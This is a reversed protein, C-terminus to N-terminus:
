LLPHSAFFQWLYQRIDPADPFSYKGPNGGYWGHGPGQLFLTEIVSQGSENRYLSHEWASSGEAGEHSSSPNRTDIEFCHGWSDRLVFASNIDVVDDNESHVIQIPVARAADGMEDRMAKVIAVVPRNRPTKNFEHRVAETKEAYPVGAVAAGSAIKDAHAVMMAVAMGAGSSLGSVHIRGPDVAYHQKIEEIIQWLDEVEGAGAHIERNFWWGWCNRNRMGRYSTIFPYAVLFGERDALQNFGSIQEIDRNDQRCGHLVVVLPRPRQDVRGPPVHVLYRRSRSGPYGRARFRYTVDDPLTERRRERWAALAAQIGGRFPTRALKKLNSWRFFARVKHLSDTFM